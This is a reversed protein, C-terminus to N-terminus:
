IFIIYINYLYLIFDYSLSLYYTYYVKFFYRNKKFILLYKIFITYFKIESIYNNLNM